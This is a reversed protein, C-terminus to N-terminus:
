AGQKQVSQSLRGLVLEIRGEATRRFDFFEVVTM